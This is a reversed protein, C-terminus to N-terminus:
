ETGGLYVAWQYFQPTYHLGSKLDLLQGSLLRYVEVFTVVEICANFWWSQKKDCLTDMSQEIWTLMGNTFHHYPIYVAKLDPWKDSLLRCIVYMYQNIYIYIYTQINKNFPTGKSQEVWTPLENSFNHYTIYVAKLDPWKGSVYTVM